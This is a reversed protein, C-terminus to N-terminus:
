QLEIKGNKYLTWGRSESPPLSLTVTLGWRSGVHELVGCIRHFYHSCENM